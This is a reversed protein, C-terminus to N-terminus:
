TRCGRRDHRRALGVDRDGRRGLTPRWRLCAAVLRRGAACGQQRAARDTCAVLTTSSLPVPDPVAPGILLAPQRTESLVRASVSGHRQSVLGTASTSMVLLVGDRDRVQDVIAAAIDDGHVVRLADGVGDAQAARRRRTDDVPASPKSVVTLVEVPLQGRRALETGVPIARDSGADIDTAIVVSNFM